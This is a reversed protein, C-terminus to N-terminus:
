ENVKELIGTEILKSILGTSDLDGVSEVGKASAAEPTKSGEKLLWNLGEYVPSITQAPAVEDPEVDFDGAQWTILERFADVGTLDRYTAHVVEGSKLYVRGFGKESGLHIGATRKEAHLIQLIDSLPLDKLRGKLRGKASM